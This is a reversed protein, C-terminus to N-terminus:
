AEADMTVLTDGERVRDGARVHVAVIDGARPARITHEMKMAEIVLLAQGAAVREGPAAQVAVVVGPLTAALSGAARLGTFADTDANEVQFEVHRGDHWVDIHGSRVLAHATEGGFRPRLELTGGEEPQGEIALDSSPGQPGSIAVEVISCSRVRVERTWTDGASRLRVEIPAPAGLRFGDALAWPSAPSTVSQLALVAAAAAFPAFAGTDPRAALAEGHRLVFDTNVPGARFAPSGVAAALWDVNTPLGAIRTEGLASRLRAIAAARTSGHAIVKALLSDYQPPVVDGTDFGTDVRLDLDVRPWAALRLRGAAPLFDGAPDEACVRVEVAHGRAVIDGQAFALPEGTAIRLQWEVM